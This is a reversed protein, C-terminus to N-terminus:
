HWRRHEMGDMTNLIIIFYAAIIQGSFLVSLFCEDTLRKYTFTHAKLLMGMLHYKDMTSCEADKSCQLNQPLLFIPPPPCSLLNRPM